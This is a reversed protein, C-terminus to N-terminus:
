ASCRKIYKLKIGNYTKGKPYNNKYKKFKKYSIKILIKQKIKIM